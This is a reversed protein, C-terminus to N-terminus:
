LTYYELINEIHFTTNFSGTLSIAFIDMSGPLNGLTDPIYIKGPEIDTPDSLIVLPEEQDDADVDMEDIIEEPDYEDDEIFEIGNM